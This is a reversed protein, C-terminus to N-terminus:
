EDEEPGGFIYADRKAIENSKQQNYAIEMVGNLFRRMLSPAPVFSLRTAHNNERTCTILNSLASVHRLLLEKDSYVYSIQGSEYLENAITMMYFLYTSQNDKYGGSHIQWDRKEQERESCLAPNYSVAERLKANYYEHMNNIKLLEDQYPKFSDIYAGSCEVITGDPIITLGSLLEACEINAIYLAKNRNIQGCGYYFGFSAPHGRFHTRRLEEWLLCIQAYTKGTEATDLAPQAMGPFTVDQDVMLSKSICQDNIEALFDKMYNVYYLINEKKTFQELFVDAKITANMTFEILVRNLKYNNVLTTFKKINNRYVNWDGNHGAESYIGPPGDISLQVKIKVQKAKAYKNVEVVFDFFKDINILWNTSLLIENIAPFKLFMTKINKSIDDIHLLTEGGWLQLTTLKTIDTELARLTKEINELYSGDEWAARVIKDFEQYAKNKNLYCFSCDLNCTACSVVSISTIDHKLRM